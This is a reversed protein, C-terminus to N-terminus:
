SDGAGRVTAAAAARADREHKVMEGLKVVVLRCKNETFTAVVSFV